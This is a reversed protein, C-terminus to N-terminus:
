IELLITTTTRRRCNQLLSEDIYLKINIEGANPLIMIGGRKILTTKIWPNCCMIPKAASIESVQVRNARGFRSDKCYLDMSFM